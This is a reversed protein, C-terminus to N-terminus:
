QKLWLLLETNQIYKSTCSALGKLDEVNLHLAFHLCVCHCIFHSEPLPDTNVGDTEDCVIGDVVPAHFTLIKHHSRPKM